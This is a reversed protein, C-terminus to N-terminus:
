ICHTETYSIPICKLQFIAGSSNCVLQKRFHTQSILYQVHTKFFPLRVRIAANNLM